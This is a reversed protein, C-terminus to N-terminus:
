IKEGKLNQLLLKDISKPSFYNISQIEYFFNKFSNNRWIDKLADNLNPTYFIIKGKEKLLILLNKILYNPDQFYELSFFLFIMDFKKIKLKKDNLDQFCDINLNKKVYSCRLPNLEVGTCNINLNKDQVCKLFYGFSCGIELIDKGFIEKNIYKKLFEQSQRYGDKFDEERASISIGADGLRKKEFQDSVISKYIVILFSSIVIKM